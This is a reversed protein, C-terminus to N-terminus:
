NSLTVSAIVRGTDATEYGPLSALDARLAASQLADLAAAVVSHGALDAPVALDCRVQILPVFALGCAHAAARLGIAADADGAAVTRAADLHSRALREYGRLSGSPVGARALLDDLLRRSGSGVERNVIRVRPDALDAVGRLDHPNGPALMLGQEWRAFAVIDGGTARLAERAPALDAEAGDLSTLHTGALHAEGRALATLAASSAASRWALRRGARGLHACLLRFAPDCGLLVAGAAIDGGQDHLRASPADGAVLRGDAPAFGEEIVREGSLPYAIVRGRVQALALRAGAEAEGVVAVPVTTAPTTDIWLEEVRCALIRALRLAVATNPVYRGSEIAGMAQRTLGIAAALQVQSLGRSQRIDRIM